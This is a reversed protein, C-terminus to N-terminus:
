DKFEIEFYYMGMSCTGTFVSTKPIGIDIDTMGSLPLTQSINLEPLRVALSCDFTNDTEFRIITPVGAKAISKRPTYGGKASISVVQIGDVLSVNNIDKEVLPSSDSKKFILVGGIMMVAFLLVFLTTKM